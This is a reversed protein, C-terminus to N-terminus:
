DFAAHLRSVAERLALTQDNRDNVLALHVLLITDGEIVAYAEIPKATLIQIDFGDHLLRHTQLEHPWGTEDGWFAILTLIHGLIQCAAESEACILDVDADVEPLNRVM